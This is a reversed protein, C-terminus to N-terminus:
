GHVAPLHACNRPAFIVRLHRIFREDASKQAASPHRQFSIAFEWLAIQQHRAVNGAQCLAMNYRHNVAALVHVQRAQVRALLADQQATRAVSFTLALAVTLLIDFGVLVLNRRARWRLKRVEASMQHLADTLGQATTIPDSL